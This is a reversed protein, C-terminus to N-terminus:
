CPASVAKKWCRPHPFFRARHQGRGFVYWLLLISPVLCAGRAKVERMALRIGSPPSMCILSNHPGFTFSGRSGACNDPEACWFAVSNLQYQHLTVHDVTVHHLTVHRQTVHHLAQAFGEVPHGFPAPASEQFHSGPGMLMTGVCNM